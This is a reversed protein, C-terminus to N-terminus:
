SVTRLGRVAADLGAVIAAESRALDLPLAFGGARELALFGHLTSRLFRTAHLAADGELEYGALVATVVDLLRAAAAATRADGAPDGALTLAYLGPRSRGFDLYAGALASLADRGSRGVAARGIADAIATVGRARLERRLGDLGEVHHYLSPTRVGVAAAVAALTLGEPGHADLAAEAADLLRELTVRARGGV